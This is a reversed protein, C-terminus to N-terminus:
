IFTILISRYKIRFRIKYFRQSIKVYVTNGSKHRYKESHLEAMRKSEGEIGKSRCAVQKNAQV